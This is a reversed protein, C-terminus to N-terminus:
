PPLVFAFKGASVILIGKLFLLSYDNCVIGFISDVVMMKETCIGIRAIAQSYIINVYYLSLTDILLLM